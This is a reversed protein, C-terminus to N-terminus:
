RLSFSRWWSQANDWCTSLMLWISGNSPPVQDFKWLSLAFGALLLWMVLWGVWRAFWIRKFVSDFTDKLREHLEPHKDKLQQHEAGADHTLDSLTLLHSWCVLGGILVFSLSGLGLAVNAITATPESDFKGVVVALGVPIALLKGALGEVAADVKLLYDIRKREYQDRLKEFAFESLYHEWDAEFSKVINDFSHLLRAFRGDEAVDRLARVMARKFLDLKREAHPPDLSKEKCANLRELAPVAKLDEAHYRIPISLKQGAVLVFSDVESVVHRVDAVQRLFELFHRLRMYGAVEANKAIAGCRYREDVLYFDLLPEQSSLRGSSTLMSRLNAWIGWNQFQVEHLPLEVECPESEAVSRFSASREGQQVVDGSMGLGELKQFLPGAREARNFSAVLWSDTLTVSDAATALAVIADLKETM